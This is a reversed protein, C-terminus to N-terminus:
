ALRKPVKLPPGREASALVRGGLFPELLAFDALRREEAPVLNPLAPTGHACALCCHCDPGCPCGEGDDDECQGTDEHSDVFEVLFGQWFMTLVLFRAVWVALRAFIRRRVPHVAWVTPALARGHL